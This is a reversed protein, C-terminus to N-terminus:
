LAEMETRNSDNELSPEEKRIAPELRMFEDYYRLGFEYLAEASFHLLDPNSGLGEASVYGTLENEMAIKRFEENLVPSNKLKEDLPCNVLFDGLGGILFPVGELSLDRRMAQMFKEFREKYTPYFEEGCDGEGQHWLVGVIKSTRQALKAQTVANEYLISGEEWQDLKTGGDACCILGAEVGHDRVYKEAFSEALSVGSFPRDPNIPRFMPQWRGNRLVKINKTDIKKAENLFGRGAMNSQGILLFSHIM